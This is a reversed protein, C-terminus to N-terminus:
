AFEIGLTALFEKPTLGEKMGRHWTQELADALTVRQMFDMPRIKDILSAIDSTEYDVLEIGLHDCLECEINYLQDPIFINGLYCDLLTAVDSESLLGSLSPRTEDLLWALRGTALLAPVESSRESCTKGDRENGGEDSAKSHVALHKSLYEETYPKYFMWAQDTEYTLNTGVTNLYQMIASTNEQKKSQM